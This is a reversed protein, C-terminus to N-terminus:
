RWRRCKTYASWHSALFFRGTVNLNIEM